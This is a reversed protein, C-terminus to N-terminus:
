SLGVRPPKIWQVQKTRMSKARLSKGTCFSCDIAHKVCASHLDPNLTTNEFVVRNMHKWLAWITFIFVTKWPIGDSLIDANSQCNVKLWQLVDLRFLAELPVPIGIKRQIQMAYPCERLLHLISKNCNRCLPCVTNCEIVRSANAIVERVPVSNHHCLWLFSCIRPLTDMKQIWEEPFPYSQNDDLIALLYASASNFEGVQSFKQILTDEKRGFM